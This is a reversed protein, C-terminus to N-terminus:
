INKMDVPKTKIVIGFFLSSNTSNEDVRRKVKQCNSITSRQYSIFLCRKQASLIRKERGIKRHAIRCMSHKKMDTCCPGGMQIKNM